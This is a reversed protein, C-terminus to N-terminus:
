LNDLDGINKFLSPLKKMDRLYCKLFILKRKKSLIGVPIVRQARIKYILLHNITM